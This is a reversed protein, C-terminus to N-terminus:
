PQRARAERVKAALLLLHACQVVANENDWGAASTTISLKSSVRDTSSRPPVGIPSLKGGARELRADWASPALQRLLDLLAMYNKTSSATKAGDLGAYDMGEAQLEFLLDGGNGVKRPWLLCFFSQDFQKQQEVEVTKKAIPIGMAMQALGVKKTTTTTTVTQGSDARCPLVLGIDEYKLRYSETRGVLELGGPFRSFSRVEISEPLLDLAARSIAWAQLGAERLANAGRQVVISQESWAALFPLNRLLKQRQDYATGGSLEALVNAAKQADGAPPVVLVGYM